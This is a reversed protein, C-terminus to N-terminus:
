PILNWNSLGQSETCLNMVVAANVARKQAALCMGAALNYIPTNNLPTCNTLVINKRLDEKIDDLDMNPAGKLVIRKVKDEEKTYTHHPTKSDILEKRLVDFKEIDSISVKANNKNFKVNCNDSRPKRTNNSTTTTPSRSNEEGYRINTMVGFTNTTKAPTPVCSTTARSTKRKKVAIFNDDDTEPISLMVSGEGITTEAHWEMKSMSAKVPTVESVQEPQIKLAGEM